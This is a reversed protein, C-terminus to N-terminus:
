DVRWGADIMEEWTAYELFEVKNRIDHTTLLGNERLDFAGILYVRKEINSDNDGMAVMSASWPLRSDIYRWAVNKMPLIPWLPWDEVNEIDFIEKEIEEASMKCQGKVKDPIKIAAAEKATMKIM